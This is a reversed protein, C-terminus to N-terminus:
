CFTQIGQYPHRRHIVIELPIGDYCRWPLKALSDPFYTGLIERLLGITEAALSVETAVAPLRKSIPYEVRACVASTSEWLLLRGRYRGGGPLINMLWEVAWDPAPSASFEPPPERLAEPPSTFAIRSM